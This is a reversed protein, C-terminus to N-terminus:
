IYKAMRFSIQSQIGVQIRKVRGKSGPYFLFLILHISPFGGKFWWRSHKLNFFTVQNSKAPIHTAGLTGVQM